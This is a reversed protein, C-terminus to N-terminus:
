LSLKTELVVFFSKIINPKGTNYNKYSYFYKISNKENKNNNLIPFQTPEALGSKFCIPAYFNRERPLM